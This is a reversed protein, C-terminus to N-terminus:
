EQAGRVNPRSTWWALWIFLIQMPARLWLATAPNGGLTLGDQAAKVNAPFM